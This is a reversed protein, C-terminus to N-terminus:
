WQQKETDTRAIQVCGRLFAGNSPFISTTIKGAASFQEDTKPIEESLEIENHADHKSHFYRCGIEEAIKGVVTDELHAHNSKVENFFTSTIYKLERLESLTSALRRSRPSFSLLANCHWQRFYLIQKIADGNTAMFQGILQYCSCVQCKKNSATFVFLNETVLCNIQSIWAIAAFSSASVRLTKRSPLTINNAM